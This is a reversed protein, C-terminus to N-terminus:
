SVEPTEALSPSQTEATPFGSGKPPASRSSNSKQLTTTWRHANGVGPASIMCLAKVDDASPGLSSSFIKIKIM